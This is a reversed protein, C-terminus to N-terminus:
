NRNAQQTKEAPNAPNTEANDTPKAQAMAGASQKSTARNAHTQGQSQTNRSDYIRIMYQVQEGSKLNLKRLDLKAKAEVVKSGNRDALELPMRFTRKSEPAAQNNDGNNENSKTTNPDKNEGQTNAAPNTKSTPQASGPQNVKPDKAPTPQKSADAPSPKSESGAPATKSDPSQEKPDAKVDSTGAETKEAPPASAAQPDAAAAAPETPKEAVAAAAADDTPKAGDTAGEQNEAKPPTEGSEFPLVQANELDPAEGTFVILEARSIGLDDRGTWEIIVQDDPRVAMDDDPSIIRVQPAQDRFVTITCAPPRENELGHQSILRPVFRVTETLTTQFVYRNPDSGPASPLILLQGKGFDLRFAELPQDATFVIELVSGEIARVKMPLEDKQVAAMRTYEPPTIRFDVGALKPRDHVSVNHLETQGDGSRFQYSFSNQAADILYAFRKPDAATPSLTSVNTVDSASDTILLQAKDRPRRTAEAELRIPEGRAVLMDGSTATIQTLSHPVTPSWFRQMLGWALPADVLFFVLHGAIAAVLFWQHKKLRDAPVVAHADVLGTRAVAEAMVQDIMAQSGIVRPADDSASLETVTQWREELSAVSRDVDAAVDALSRRNLLPIAALVVLGLGGAAITAYTVVQRQSTSFLTLAWDLLLAALLLVLFLALADVLGTLLRLRSERRRVQQLRRHIVPPLAVLQRTTGLTAM